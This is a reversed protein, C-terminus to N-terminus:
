STNTNRNAKPIMVRSNYIYYNIYRNRLKQSQKMRGLKDKEEESKKKESYIRLSLVEPDFVTFM